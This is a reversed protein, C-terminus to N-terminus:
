LVRIDKSGLTSYLFYYRLRANFCTMTNILQVIFIINDPMSNNRNGSELQRSITELKPNEKLNPYFRWIYQEYRFNVLLIKWDLRSKNKIYELLKIDDESTYEKNRRSDLHDYWYRFLFLM